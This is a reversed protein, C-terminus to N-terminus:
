GIYGLGRLRDLTADDYEAESTEITLDECSRQWEELQDLLPRARAPETAFLNRTEGPDAELDYLEHSQDSRWILKTTETRLAKMEMENLAKPATNESITFPRKPREPSPVLSYSVDSTASAGSLQLITPFVDGVEVPHEVRSGAPFLAPYRVVLPVRILEDYLYLRHGLYGHEGLSDGHDSTLIVVTDDLIGQDRMSQLLEGVRQDLYGLAGDYLGALIEFDAAQRKGGGALIEEKSGLSAVRLRNLRSPMFKRDYPVPPSYREHSEMYNVFAFFPTERDRQGLWSLIKDNTLKAGHDTDHRKAARAISRGRRALKAAAVAPRALPGLAQLRKIRGAGKPRAIGRPHTQRWIDEVTDFGQALGTAESIYANNSFCATQYGAGKLRTALTPFGAPLADASKTLGHNLPYLGTFMTTHSPLTWCANSIAKAYLTGERALADISPTTDKGYGYCSVSAARASDMVLLVINPSSQKESM